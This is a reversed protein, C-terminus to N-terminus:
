SKAMDTNPSLQDFLEPKNEKILDLVDKRTHDIRIGMGIMQEPTLNIDRNNASKLSPSKSVDAVAYSSPGPISSDVKMYIRFCDSKPPLDFKVQGNDLLLFPSDPPLLDVAGHNENIFDVM